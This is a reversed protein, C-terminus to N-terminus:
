DEASPTKTIIGAILAGYEDPLTYGVTDSINLM